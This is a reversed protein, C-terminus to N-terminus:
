CKFMLIIRELKPLNKFAGQCIFEIQNTNLKIEKLEEELEKIKKDQEKMKVVMENKKM